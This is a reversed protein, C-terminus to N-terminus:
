LASEPFGYLHMMKAVDSLPYFLLILNKDNQNYLIFYDLQSNVPSISFSQANDVVWKRVKEREGSRPIPICLTRTDNLKINRINRDTGLSDSYFSNWFSGNYINKNPPTNFLREKLGEELYKVVVYNKFIKYAINYFCDIQKEVIGQDFCNWEDYLIMYHSFDRKLVHNINEYSRISRSSFDEQIINKITKIFYDYINKNIVQVSGSETNQLYARYGSYDVICLEPYEPLLRIREGLYSM